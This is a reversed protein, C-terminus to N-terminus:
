FCSHAILHEACGPQQLLIMIRNGANRGQANGQELRKRADAMTVGAPLTLAPDTGTQNQAEGYGGQAWQAVGQRDCGTSHPEIQNIKESLCNNTAASNEVAAHQGMVVPSLWAGLIAAGLVKGKLVQKIGQMM